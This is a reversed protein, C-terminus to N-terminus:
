ANVAPDQKSVTLTVCDGEVAAILDSRVYHNRNFLSGGDVKLFGYRVLQSRKPEAVDPEREDGFVTSSVQDLVRPGDLTNGTGVVVRPDGFQVYVVTGLLQGGQDVVVMGEEVHAILSRDLSGGMLKARDVM